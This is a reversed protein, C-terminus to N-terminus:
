RPAPASGRSLTMGLGVVLVPVVLLYVVAHGLGGVLWFLQTGALTGLYGIAAVATVAHRTSGWSAALSLAVPFQCSLGLGTIVFGAPSVEQGGELLFWVLGLATLGAGANLLNRVGARAAVLGGLLGGVAMGFGLAHSGNLSVAGEFRWSLSARLVDAAVGAVLAVGALLLFNHPMRPRTDELQVDPLLVALGAAAVLSIVATWVLRDVQPVHASILQATLLSGVLGGLALLGHCWPLVLRGTDRELGAALLNMAIFLAGNALALGVMALALVGLSGVFAAGGLVLGAAIASTVAVARAGWRGALWAGLPMGLPALAVGLLVVLGVAIGEGLSNPSAFRSTFMSMAFLWSTGVGGHLFFYAGLAVRGRM